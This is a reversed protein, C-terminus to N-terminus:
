TTMDNFVDDCIDNIINERIFSYNNFVWVISQFIVVNQKSLFFRFFLHDFKKFRKKISFEIWPLM